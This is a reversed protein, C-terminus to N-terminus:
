RMTTSPFIMNRTKGDKWESIGVENLNYVFQSVCGSSAETMARTMEDLFIGLVQLKLNEQRTSPLEFTQDCNWMLFFNLCNVTVRHGYQVTCHRLVDVQTPANSKEATWRIWNMIAPESRGGTTGHRALLKPPNLENGPARKIARRKHGFMKEFSGATYHSANERKPPIDGM